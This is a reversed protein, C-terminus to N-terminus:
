GWISIAVHLLNYSKFFKIDLHAFITKVGEIVSMVIVRAKVAYKLATM